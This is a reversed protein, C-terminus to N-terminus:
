EPLLNYKATEFEFTKGGIFNLKITFVHESATPVTFDPTISLAYDAIPSPLDTTTGSLHCMSALDAGAPFDGKDTSLANDSKIIFGALKDESLPMVPECAFATMTPRFGKEFSIRQPSLQFGFELDRPKVSWSGPAPANGTFRVAMSIDDIKYPTQDFTQGCCSDMCCSEILVPALILCLITCLAKM